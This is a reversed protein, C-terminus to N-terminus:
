EQSHDHLADFSWQALTGTLEAIISKGCNLCVIDDHWEKLWWFDNEM